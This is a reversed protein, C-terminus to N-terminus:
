FRWSRLAVLICPYHQSFTQTEHDWLLVAENSEARLDVCYLDGCGNTAFPLFTADRTLSRAECIESPYLVRNAFRLDRLGGAVYFDLLDLPLKLGLQDELDSLEAQSFTPAGDDIHRDNEAILKAVQSLPM